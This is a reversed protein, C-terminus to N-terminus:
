GCHMPQPFLEVVIPKAHGRMRRIRGMAGAPGHKTSWVDAKDQSVWNGRYAPGKRYFLGTTEDKVQYLRM